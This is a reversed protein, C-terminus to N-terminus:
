SYIFFFFLFFCILIKKKLLEPEAVRFASFFCLRLFIAREDLDHGGAVSDSYEYM